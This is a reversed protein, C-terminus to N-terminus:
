TICHPTLYVDSITQNVPTSQQPASTTRREQLSQLKIYIIEQYELLKFAITYLNPHPSNFRKKFHMHFAEAANTTRPVDAENSPSTAWMSPPFRAEDAIYTEVMYNAFQTVREDLAADPMIDFAFADSVECPDLYPLGFISKLWMGIANNNDAYEDQMGLQRIKKLLAQGFHFQCCKITTHPFVNRFANHAAIEFDLLVFKPQFSM